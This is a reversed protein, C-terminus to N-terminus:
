GKNIGLILSKRLSLPLIYLFRVHNEQAIYPRYNSVEAVLHSEHTLICFDFYNDLLGQISVFCQSTLGLDEQPSTSQVCLLSQWCKLFLSLIDIHAHLCVSPGLSVNKLFPISYQNLSTFPAIKYGTVLLIIFSFIIQDKVFVVELDNEELSILTNYFLFIVVTVSDPCCM